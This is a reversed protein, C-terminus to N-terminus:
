LWPFAPAQILPSHSAEATLIPVEVLPPQHGKLESVLVQQLENERSLSRQETLGEGTPSKSGDVM